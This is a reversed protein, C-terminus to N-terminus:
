VLQNEPNKATIPLFLNTNANEPENEVVVFKRLAKIPVKIVSNRFLSNKPKHTLVHLHKGDRDLWLCKVRVENIQEFSHMLTLFAVLPILTLGVDLAGTMSYFRFAGEYLLLFTMPLKTYEIARLYWPIDDSQM